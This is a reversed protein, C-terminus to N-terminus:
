VESIALLANQTGHNPSPTSSEFTTQKSKLGQGSYLSQSALGIVILNKRGTLGRAQAVLAEEDAPM